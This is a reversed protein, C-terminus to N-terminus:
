KGEIDRKVGDLSDQVTRHAAKLDATVDAERFVHEVEAKTDTIDKTIEDWGTEKKIQAIIRHLNKLQRAIWRAVRPLDKPGVILFAVLLVVMLEAFGINFM